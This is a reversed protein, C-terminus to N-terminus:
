LLVGAEQLTILACESLIVERSILKLKLEPIAFFHVRQVEKMNIKFPGDYVGRYLAARETEIDDEVIFKKVFKVPIAVGLEEVLERAITEEDSKGKNVHGACSIGWKGPDTDKTLSRQQLLLRGQGDFILAGVTRHILSKDHHCDYRSRYGLVNDDKDVVVFMEEQDDTTMQSVGPANIAVNVVEGGANTIAAEVAERKDKQVLAIMCDGGGAGSLKMGYAGVGNVASILAELKESSVGLDRLYDQNFNMFKGLSVWDKEDIAKKAKTVNEAIAKFIREVREPYKKRKKAVENVIEVTNSKVGSYGVVLTVDETDFEVEELPEGGKGYLITRGYIAAVVDFGSGVKQVDLVTKFALDFLERKSIESGFFKFLGFLTAVTVASSSGFGYVGSFPSRTTIKLGKETSFKIRELTKAIAADVFRTDKVQPAVIEVGSAEKEEISVELRESVATVLCPYGYVVAHEGLLMLKGPASVTLMIKNDDLAQRPIGM